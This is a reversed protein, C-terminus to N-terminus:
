PSVHEIFTKLAAWYRPSSSIDNHGRGPILVLEKDKTGAADFAARGETPAILEDEEGHLVLLPARGRALKPVPDFIQKEAESFSVPPRLGRRRILAFLDTFGSELILGLINANYLAAACASGLSRGMVIIKQGAFASLVRPADDITNRLTPSGTSEGYGRFDVVALEAGASRFLPAAQDYDAVVEGNGHFLLLTARAGPANHRRLHLKAGPVDISTDIAGPPPASSLPSPFFMRETFIEQDFISTDIRPRYEFILDRAAHDRQLRPQRSV